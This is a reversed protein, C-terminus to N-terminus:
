NVKNVAILKGLKNFSGGNVTFNQTGNAYIGIAQDDVAATNNGTIYFNSINAMAENELTIGYSNTGSVRTRSINLSSLQISPNFDASSGSVYIGSGTANQVSVNSATVSSETIVVGMGNSSSVTINSLAISRDAYSANTNELLSLADSGSNSIRIQNLNGSCNYRILLARGPSNDITMNSIFLGNVNGLVCVTSTGGSNTSDLVKIDSFTLRNSEISGSSGHKLIGREYGTMQLNSLKIDSKGDNIAVAVGGGTSAFNLNQITVDDTDIIFADIGSTKITKANGLSEITLGYSITLAQTLSIDQDIILSTEKNAIAATLEDQNSIYNNEAAKTPVATLSKWETGDYGIFDGSTEDFRIMGAEAAIGSNGSIKLDKLETLGDTYAVTQSEKNYIWPSDVSDAVQTLSKWETGNYGIFDGSTEDFRIMGAEAAVGSNGSIKLDKLETLGDTFAITKAEENFTWPSNGSAMAETLSKWETGNYGIFDGTQEDFRIMGAEPAIGSSGSIKLDKLETLGETYAVSGDQDNYTWPNDGSNIAYLATPVSTINTVGMLEGNLSIRIKFDGSGWDIDSIKGTRNSGTGIKFSIIGNTGTDIGTHSESFVSQGNKIIDVTFDVTTNAMIAGESNRVVAQYNFSDTQAFANVGLFFFLFLALYTRNM